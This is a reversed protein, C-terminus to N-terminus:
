DFYDARDLLASGQNGTDDTFKVWITAGASPRRVFILSDKSVLVTGAAVAVEERAQLNFIASIVSACGSDSYFNLTATRQAVLNNAGLTLRMLFSSSKEGTSTAAVSACVDRVLAPGALPSTTIACQNPAVRTYGAECAKTSSLTGSVALTGGGTSADSHTHEPTGPAIAMGAYVPGGCAFLSFSSALILLLKKM